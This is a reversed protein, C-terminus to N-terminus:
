EHVGNQERACTMMTATGMAQEYTQWAEQVTNGNGVYWSWPYKTPITCHWKRNQYKLKPKAWYRKRM